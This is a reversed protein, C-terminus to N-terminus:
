AAGGMNGSGMEGQTGGGNGAAGPLVGTDGSGDAMAALEGSRVGRELAAGQARQFKEAASAEKLRADARMGAVKAKAGEMEIMSKPTVGQALLELANPIRAAELIRTEVKVPDYIAPAAAARGALFQARALRQMDTVSAPDSVPMVDVGRMDFDTRPDANAVDLVQRYVRADLFDRNLGWLRRHARRESRYIRKYITSYVQMGQEILALVTGEALRQQGPMDGTLVDKTATIDRAAGLLFDLVQFQVASPGNFQLEHISQSVAQGSANVPHFEGPRIRVVGGRLKLASSIFGGGANARTGADIIQNLLANIAAGLPELLHGFGISYFGGDPDPLFGYDIWPLDRVLADGAGSEWVRLNAPDFAPELRVITTTERHITAVYPEPLGDRDLDEYRYQELYEIPKQSDQGDITYEHNRWAGAAIRQAIEYPFFRCLQTVRPAQDLSPSDKPVYVFKSSVLDLVPRNRARSWGIKRFATGQVPLMHCLGDTAPDWEDCLHLLQYNTFTSVREGLAAKAGQPDAGFIKPKVVQDDRVMAGYARSGFQIAATTLVPFKVNSAGDFPFSKREDDQRAAAIARELTADWDRRSSRDGDLEEIARAAISARESEEILDSVDGEVEGMAEILDSPTRGEAEAEMEDEADMGYAM